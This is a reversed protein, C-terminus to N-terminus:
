IVCSDCNEQSQDEQVEEEADVRKLNNNYYLTKLGYKYATLIDEFVEKAPIKADPYHDLNYTTNTSITQDIWKQIIAVTKIYNKPGAQDWVKDYKASLKYADPAVIKVGRKTVVMARVPEVGNTSNAVKSSTESPMCAMLTANRIGYKKVDERLTDWDFREQHKVLQDVAQKRLDHPFIGQSYKTNKWADCPGYEKALDVSARIIYYSFAEMYHDLVNLAEQEGYKLGRKALFYALNNIGIGLPRYMRTHKEAAKLPYDQYSLLSDLSYVANRCPKELDEPKKVSGFDIASLTCLAILGDPDDHFNLPETHQLIEVCLNTMKIPAVEPIFPGQINALDVFLVYVRSTGTREGVLLDRLDNGSISSKIVTRSRSYQDYLKEFKEQDAFFAKYLDPVQEPSFLWITENKMMKKLLVGNLLITHDSHRIRNEENGKNNKLVILQEVDLHWGLHMFNISGKRIAGQSCSLAATELHKTFPIPGTTYAKGNRVSQKAARLKAVSVGLGAKKAAYTMCADATASISKLSDGCEILVCSSFQKEDTRVGAILPTPITTQYLSLNNYYHKIRKFGYKKNLIASVLIYAIQPSEKFEKTLRNQVLYKDTWESVGSYRITFDREHDVFAEIIEWEEETYLNVLESSYWGDSCNKKIIDYLRPVEHQGYAKKRIDFTALRGAVLDYQNDKTILDHTSDILAQHLDATKMGDYFKIQATQEIESPSTNVTGECAWQAVRHIKQIDLPEKEGNRKTVYIKM